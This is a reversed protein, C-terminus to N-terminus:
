SKLFNTIFNFYQFREFGGTTTMYFCASKKFSPSNWFNTTNNKLSGICLFHLKGYLIEETLPFGWKKHLTYTRETPKLIAIRSNFMKRHQSWFWSVNQRQIRQSFCGDMKQQNESSRLCRNWFINLCTYGIVANLIVAPWNDNVTAIANAVASFSRQVTVMVALVLICCCVELFLLLLKRM